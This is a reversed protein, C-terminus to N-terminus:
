LGREIAALRRDAEVLLGETYKFNHVGWSGDAQISTLVSKAQDLGALIEAAVDAGFRSQVRAQLLEHRKTIQTHLTKIKEQWFPVYREGTGAAHCHDCAAPVARAVTGFSDLIGETKIGREIHCGTCEVHTLFMPSLVRDHTKPVMPHETSYITRQVQHTDSHCSRCDMMAAISDVGKQAHLTEGHCAFCEVKQHHGVHHAHLEESPTNPDLRFDHCSLCTNDDVKSSKRIENKHCSDECSAEYSVFEAHNITVLGRKIVEKPVEHCSQCQTDAVRKNNDGELFHCTYCVNKNVSFHVDGEFHSHCTDCRMDIGAVTKQLHKQHTFKIGNFDISDTQLEEVSHCGGRLCSQDYISANPKTGQRGLVCDVSQALGNLKGRILGAFGPQLHCNVCSVEHHSSTKWSAYYPNMIHCTNCFTNTSTVEVPVVVALLFLVLFVALKVSLKLEMFIRFLTKFFKV